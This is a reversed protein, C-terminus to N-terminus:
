PHSGKVLESLKRDWKGFLGKAKAVDGAEYLRYVDELARAFQKQKERPLIPILVKSLKGKSISVTGTGQKERDIFLKGISGNLYFALFGPLLKNGRLIFMWDDVQSVNEKGSIRLARGACGVGVRVFVVDGEVAVAGPRYIDENKKIVDFEPLPKLGVGLFDRARLLRIFGRPVSDRSYIRSKSDGYKAFGNLIDVFSSLPAFDFKSKKITKKIEFDAYYYDPDM